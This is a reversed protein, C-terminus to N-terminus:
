LDDLDIDFRGETVSVKEKNVIEQGEFEFTGSIIRNIPDFKTIVVKGPNANMSFFHRFKNDYYVGFPQNPTYNLVNVGKAAKPLTLQVRDNEIGNAHIFLFFTDASM